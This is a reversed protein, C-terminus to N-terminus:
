GVSVFRIIFDGGETGDNDGDLAKGNVDKIMIKNNATTIVSAPNGKLTLRFFADPRHQLLESRTKVTTIQLTKNDNSWDFKLPTNIGSSFTLRISKNDTVSSIEVSRSFTVIISIKDDATITYGSASPYEEPVPSIVRLNVNYPIQGRRIQCNSNNSLFVCCVIMFTSAIYNTM